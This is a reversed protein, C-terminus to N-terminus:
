LRDLRIIGKIFGTKTVVVESDGAYYNQLLEYMEELSLQIAGKSSNYERLITQTRVFSDQSESIIYNEDMFRKIINQEQKFKKLAEKAKEPVNEIETFEKFSKVSILQKMFYSLFVEAKDKLKDKIKSDAKVLYEKKINKRTKVYSEFDESTFVSEFPILRIRNWTAEDARKIYPVSNMIAIPHFYPQIEAIEKSKQYLDRGYLSDDGTISKIQGPDLVDNDTIEDIIVLRANKLRFLEPCASGQRLQTGMVLSKPSKMVMKTFVSELLRIFVSKGNNGVGTWVNFQKFVNRGLFFLGCEKKMYKRLSIDPFITKMFNKVFNRDEEQFKEWEKYNHNYKEKIYFKPDPEVFKWLETDFVTNNFAIYRTNQKFLEEIKEDHFQEFLAKKLNNLTNQNRVKKHLIVISKQMEQYEENGSSIIEQIRSQYIINWKRIYEGFEYEWDALEIWTTGSYKWCGHDKSTIYLDQIYRKVSEAIDMDYIPIFHINFDFCIDRNGRILGDEKAFKILTGLGLPKDVRRKFISDWKRQCDIENYDELSKKSFLHFLQCWDVENDNYNEKCLTCLIMCIQVWKNYEKSRSIDLDMVLDAIRSSSLHPFKEGIKNEEIWQNDSDSDSYDDSDSDSDLDSDSSFSPINPQEIKKIKYYKCFSSNLSLRTSLVLTFINDNDIISNLNINLIKHGKLFEKCNEVIKYEDESYEIGYSIEYSIDDESKRSRYLLWPKNSVNDLISKIKEPSKSIVIKFLKESDEKNLSVNFFHLHFGHKYKGLKNKRLPKSLFFIKYYKPRDELLEDLVSIYLLAINKVDEDTYLFFNEPKEETSIDVDVLVPRPYMPMEALFAPGIELLFSVYNIVNYKKRNVVDIINYMSDNLTEMSNNYYEKVYQM